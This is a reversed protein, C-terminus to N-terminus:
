RHQKQIWELAADLVPDQGALLQRRTPRVEEDPKVGIGELPQGGESIYNAIAYQFGDGNPLRSIISPLAAGATRTGFIRARKVDQLGGAFIESTSASCGDVLIALPGRFPELRPFIVFQFTVGRLYETGLRLGSRDTFWGAIGMALGGIGGPNGRVDIIFGKCDRCGGVAQELTKTLDEPDMFENFAVYGVEPRPKRAEAWFYGPPMNGFRVLKGRPRVRAIDLSVLRGDGDLFGVRVPAGVAGQLRANVARMLRFDLLTSKAFQDEVKRLAPAIESDKVRVIEWGPKVGREAAASGPQVSTVLVHGDIVRVEIGATGDSGSEEDESRGGYADYVDGPFVAFHTQHLRGLMDAMVTRAEERTKAAEVKPRLEDHVSQWDLGGLKPDWHKELVTKWVVEFSDVDIQRAGRAPTEQSDAIWCCAFVLLLIGSRRFM